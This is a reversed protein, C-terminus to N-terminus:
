SERRRRETERELAKREAATLSQMGQERIKDLIRDFEAAQRARDGEAKAQKKEEAERQKREDDSETQVLSETFISGESDEFGMMSETYDLQKLTSFCTIGGFMAIAFLSMNMTVAAVVLLLIAGCFGARCAYRVSRAYGVKSWCIAQFIRGGDMPYLPLLNFLLLVLSLWNLTFLTFLDFREYVALPPAFVLPNPLAVRLWQGTWLGLIPAAVLMILVNVMPGGVATALYAKWQHPPACFALGGLPWMLIEDATGGWRRCTLAHGFEHLLVILFIVTIRVLVYEIGLRTAGQSAMPWTADLVQWAILILFLLHIRVDIGAVRFLPLSWSMPNDFTPRTRAWSGTFGQRASADPDRFGEDGTGGM